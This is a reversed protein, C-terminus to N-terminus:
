NAGENDDPVSKGIFTKNSRIKVTGKLGSRADTEALEGSRQKTLQDKMKVIQDHKDKPMKMLLLERCEKTHTETKHDKSEGLIKDDTMVKEWGQSVRQDYKKKDVWRYAFNPDKKVDPIIRIKPVRIVQIREKAM